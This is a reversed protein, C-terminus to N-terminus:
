GFPSQRRSRSRSKGVPVDNPLGAVCHTKAQLLKMAHAYQTRGGALGWNWCLTWGNGGKKKLQLGDCKLGPGLTPEFILALPEAFLFAVGFVARFGHRFM